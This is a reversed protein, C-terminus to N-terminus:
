RGGANASGRVVDFNLRLQSPSGRQMQDSRRESLSRSDEKSTMADIKTAFTEKCHYIKTQVIRDARLSEYLHGSCTGNCARQSPNRAIRKVGYLTDQLTRQLYLM